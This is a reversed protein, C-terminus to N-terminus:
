RLYEWVKTGADCVRIYGKAEMIKKENKFQTQYRTLFEGKKKGVWVYNPRGIGRLSFGLLSYLNGKTKTINSYSVVSGQYHKLFAKFLKSAAGVVTTGTKSCFRTLEWDYQHKYSSHNFSNFCMLSVLEGQFYLGLNIKTGTAGQIHNAGLFATKEKVPVEKLECKRAFVRRENLGFLNRLNNIIQEKIRPTDWEHEFIHYIFIGKEEAKLSKNQHYLDGVREARHYWDGNFEIGIKYEPSYIDIEMPWFIKKEKHTEIGWSKLLDSIEREPTSVYFNHSFCDQIDWEAARKEISSRSYGLMKGIEDYTKKDQFQAIYALLNEKCSLVEVSESSVGLQQYSKRGYKQRMTEDKRRMLEESQGSYEGGYLKVMTIRSRRNIEDNMLSCPAGYREISTQRVKESIEKNQRPADCGYKERMTKLYKERVESPVKKLGYKAFARRVVSISVGCMEAVEKATKGEEIYLKRLEEEKLAVM